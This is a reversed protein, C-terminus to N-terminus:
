NAPVFCAAGDVPQFVHVEPELGRPVYYNRTLSETLAPATGTRALVVISGGLGAGVLQAGIVGTTDQAIDVVEDIEPTSCGYAGPQNHLAAPNGPGAGDSQTARILSNLHADDARSSWPRRRGGVGVRSVRDGDHSTVFLRAILKEDAVELAELVRRSRECEAIGFLLVDRLPYGGDHDDHSAFWSEIREAEDHMEEHVQARSVWAPIKRLAEYIDAPEAGLTEPNVDRLHAITKAWEPCRRRFLSLAIEYAAVRANFRDRATRSKEARQQSNCLIIELGPPLTARRALHIPHFGIQSIMGRKGYVMSAHDGAGGRTGVFWEGEGCHNIMEEAGVEQGALRAIAVATAVFVSSSSSLGVSLPVDGWYVANLGAPVRDAFQSRFRIYAGLGYNGWAGRCSKLYNSVAESDVYDHWSIGQASQVLDAADYDFAAFRNDLNHFSLRGDDRASAIIWIDNHIAITNIYGGRHDIHRGMLNVRGPARAVVVRPDNGFHAAFAGLMQALREERRDVLDPRDGYLRVMVQRVAAPRSTLIERWQSVTLLEGVGGAGVSSDSQAMCDGKFCM